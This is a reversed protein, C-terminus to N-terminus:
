GRIEVMGRPTRLHAVLGDPGEERAEVPEHPELGAARLTALTAGAQPHQLVLKELRCGADPLAASPHDTDWQLVTPITGGRALTGGPPVGIRWRYTGRSMPLAEIQGADLAGITAGIDDSRVAWTILAPGRELRARMEPSDLDFWRPRSPKSGLPDVAIVELYREPGLSLLRNHTGMAEHRGGGSLAVGLRSELWAAGEALERAAIVLHDFRIDM